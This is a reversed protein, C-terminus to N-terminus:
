KGSVMIIIINNYNNNNIISNYSDERIIFGAGRHIFVGRYGGSSSVGM